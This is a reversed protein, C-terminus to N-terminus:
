LLSNPSFLEIGRLRELLSEAEALAEIAAGSEGIRVAAFAIALSADLADVSAHNLFRELVPMRDGILEKLIRCETEAAALDGRLLANKALSLRSEAEDAFRCLAKSPFIFLAILFLCIAVTMCIRFVTFGM